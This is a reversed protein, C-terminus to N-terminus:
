CIKKKMKQIPQDPQVPKDEEGAPSFNVAYVEAEQAIAGVEM